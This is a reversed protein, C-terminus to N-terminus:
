VNSRAEKEARYEALARRKHCEYQQQKVREKQEPTLRERWRREYERIKERNKERYQRQYERIHDKHEQKYKWDYARREELTQM